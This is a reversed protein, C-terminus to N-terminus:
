MTVYKLIFLQGWSTYFVTATQSLGEAACYKKHLRDIFEQVTGSLTDADNSAQFLQDSGLISIFEM